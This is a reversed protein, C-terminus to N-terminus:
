LSCSCKREKVIGAPRNISPKFPVYLICITKTSVHSGSEIKSDGLYGKNNVQFSYLLTYPVYRVSRTENTIKATACVGYHQILINGINFRFVM